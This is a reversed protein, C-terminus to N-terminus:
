AKSPNKQQHTTIHGGGRVESSQSDALLSTCVLLAATLNFYSKNM